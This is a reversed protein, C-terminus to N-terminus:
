QKVGGVGEKKNDDGGDRVVREGDPFTHYRNSTSPHLIRQDDVVVPTPHHHTANVWPICGCPAALVPLNITSNIERGGELLRGFIEWGEGRKTGLDSWPWSYSCLM